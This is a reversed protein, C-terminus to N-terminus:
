PRKAAPGGAGTRLARDLNARMQPDTPNLRVAEQFQATAEAVNGTMALAIGLLNHAVPSGPDLRVADRAHPEGHVPDSQGLYAEALSRHALASQPDLELAKQLHDIAENRRGSAMLTAALRTEITSSNPQRALLARYEVTAEDYRKQAFLVDALSQRVADNAPVMNLIVRFQEAAEELRGQSGLAQGVLTRAPIRNLNSPQAAIFQRLEAIGEGTKGDVILETGLGFRADPFDRVAEGFQALAGAHDGQALMETALAMRARGHPRREVVTRWLSLPTAYEANRYVTRVALATLVAVTLGVAIRARRKRSGDADAGEVFLRLAVAALVAIAAFPLYMRREAGVESVIPIVSSSPALTLFFATALFGIRPWRVLAVGSAVLLPLVVLSAPIVDRIAVARPLGYDLVLPGPWLSLRLYTAIMQVQNLLYTWPGVGSTLSVTSRPQRWQFAGFELWTAALGAYLYRRARIAAGISDYEFARDYLLVIVPATVMSEKTAMGLACALISGAQWRVADGAGVRRGRIACYLTLLFFLAMLSETRETTYDVAESQLPHLMWLLSAVLATVDAPFLPRSLPRSPNEVRQAVVVGGSGKERLTRRVIGFLLLACSIHVAVNTVHYGTESLGGIAYNIAFTLNVMPRGAVPTERPPQLADSLPWLHQISHNTVISTQDDWIFPGALSNWYTCAGAAVILLLFLAPRAPAARDPAVSPRRRARSRKSIAPPL